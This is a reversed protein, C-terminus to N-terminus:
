PPESTPQRPTAMDYSPNYCRGEYDVHNPSCPSEDDGVLIWCGDNIAKEGRPCPPKRQGPFPTKPMSRGLAYTPVRARPM